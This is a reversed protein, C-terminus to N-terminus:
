GFLASLLYIAGVIVAGALIGLIAADTRSLDDMWDDKIFM